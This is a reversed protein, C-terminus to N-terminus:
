HSGSNLFDDPLWDANLIIHRQRQVENRMSEILRLFRPNTELVHFVPLQLLRDADLYGRDFAQQLHDIAEEPKNEAMSLVALFEHRDPWYDGSNMYQSLTQQLTNVDNLIDQLPSKPEFYSDAWAKWVHAEIAEANIKKAQDFAVQAQEPQQQLLAIQALLLHLEAREVGRDLATQTIEKAQQLQGQSLYFEARALAAFVSDPNLQDAMQYWREALANFELFQLIQAIQLHRYNHQGSFASVNLRLANVLNGSIGYLYALGGQLGHNDPQMALAQEYHKIAETIKGQVDLVFGLTAITNSNEPALRVAKRAMQEAETLIDDPTNFKSVLQAYTSSLGTLASVSDPDQQLVLKYLEAAQETSSKSFRKYYRKAQQLTEEIPDLQIDITNDPLDTQQKILNDRQWWVFAGSILLIVFIIPTKTPWSTKSISNQTNVQPVWRYGEGRISEIYETNQNNNLAKRLMAIRQTVTEPGVVKHQWIEDMLTEITVKEGNNSVLLALVDFTLASMDIRNKGRYARRENIDIFLDATLYM